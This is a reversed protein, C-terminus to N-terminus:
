YSIGNIDKTKPKSKTLSSVIENFKSNINVLSLNEIHWKPLMALLGKFSEIVNEDNPEKPPVKNKLRYSLKKVLEKTHKADMPAYYYKENPKKSTYFEEFVIRIKTVISEVAPPPAVASSNLEKIKQEETITITATENTRESSSENTRESTSEDKKKGKRERKQRPKGIEAKTRENTRENTRETTSENTRDYGQDKEYNKPDQYYAYNLVTILVGGPYRVTEIMKEHRLFEMAKKINAESYMVKRYGVYWALAERIDQYCRFVQGREVKFGQYRQETHSAERLLYDWTERVHPPSKAVNSSKIFRAKIYYGGTIM